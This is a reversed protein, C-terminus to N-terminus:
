PNSDHVKNKPLLNRGTVLYLSYDINRMHPDTNATAIPNMLPEGARCGGPPQRHKAMVLSERYEWIFENEVNERVVVFSIVFQILLVNGSIRRRFGQQGCRFHDDKANFSM